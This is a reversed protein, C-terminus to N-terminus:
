SRVPITSPVVQGASYAGTIAGAGNISYGATSSVAGPADFTTFTGDPARLFGHGVSSADDFSGTITGAENISFAGTNLAGPADFTTIAGGPARLFGHEVNSPDVYNGTIVGAGNISSGFSGQFYPFSGSTGAGPADFTTITGGPARLFGHNVNSGDRYYGTVAGVLNISVAFTGQLYPYFSGSTGAGPADFTAITGDPARLFGHGVNSGDAYYGAIQGEQNISAPVTNTGAGMDFSTFTGDPARLFGRGTGNAVYRGTIAGASNISEAIGNGAGPPDITTFTAARASWSLGLELSCFLALCLALSGRCRSAAFSKPSVFRHTMTIDGMEFSKKRVALKSQKSPFVVLIYSPMRSQM